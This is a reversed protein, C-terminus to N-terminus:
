IMRYRPRRPPALALLLDIIQVAALTKGILTPRIPAFVILMRRYADLMDTHTVRGAWKTKFDPYYDLANLLVDTISAQERENNGDFGPFEVPSGSPAADKAIRAKDAASLTKYGTEILWWMELIDIVELVAAPRDHRNPFLGSYKRKLAWSHGQTVAAQVFNPDIGNEIKLHRHIEGLMTAIVTEAGSFRVDPPNDQALGFEILQRAAEARSIDGRGIRWTDLQDITTPDLRMEFRESKAQM